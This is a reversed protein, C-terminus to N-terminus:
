SRPRQGDVLMRMNTEATLPNLDAVLAACRPGTAGGSAGSSVELVMLGWLEATEAIECWEKSHPTIYIAM